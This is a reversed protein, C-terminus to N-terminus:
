RRRRGGARNLMLSLRIHLAPVLQATSLACVVGLLVGAAADFAYHAGVAVRAWAVGVTGAGAVWWGIRQRRPWLGGIAVAACAGLATATFGTAHGSPFGFGAEGTFSATVPRARAVLQKGVLEVVGGVTAAAPTVLAAAADHTRRWVVAGVILAIMAVVPGSGLVSVANALTFVASSKAQVMDTTAARDVAAIHGHWSLGTLVGLVLLASGCALKAM